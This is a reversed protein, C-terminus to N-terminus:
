EDSDEEGFYNKMLGRYEPSQMLQFLVANKAAEDKNMLAKELREGFMSTAKQGKLQGAMNLLQDNSANYIKSVAKVPASASTAGLRSAIGITPAKSGTILKSAFNYGRTFIDPEVTPESGGVQREAAKRWSQSDLDKSMKEPDFTAIKAIDAKEAKLKQLNEQLVDLSRRYKEAEIGRLKGSALLKEMENSLKNETDSLDSFFIKRFQPDIGKELISEPLMENYDAFNKSWKSYDPVAEKLSEDLSNILNYVEKKIFGGGPLPEKSLDNVYSYLAKKLNQAEIPTIKDIEGATMKQIIQNTRNKFTEELLPNKNIFTQLNIASGLVPKSININRGENTATEIV